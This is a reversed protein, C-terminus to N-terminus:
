SNRATVRATTTQAPPTSGIKKPPRKTPVGNYPKLWRWPLKTRGAAPFHSNERPQRGHRGHQRASGSPGAPCAPAVAAAACRCAPARRRARPGPPPQHRRPLRATSLCAGVSRRSGGRGGGGARGALQSAAAAAPSQLEVIRVDPVAEERVLDAGVAVVGVAGAGRGRRRRPQAVRLLRQAAQVDRAEEVPQAVVRGRM